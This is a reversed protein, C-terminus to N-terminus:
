LQWVLQQGQHLCPAGLERFWELALYGTGQLPMDPRPEIFNDVAVISGARLCARAADLQRVRENAANFPDAPNFASADLYLLDIQPAGPAAALQQLHAVPDAIHAQVADGCAIRHVDAAAPHSEVVHIEGPYFATFVQLLLTSQGIAPLNGIRRLSGTAVILPPRALARCRAELLEFILRYGAARHQLLPAFKEAYLALFPSPPAPAGAPQPPPHSM